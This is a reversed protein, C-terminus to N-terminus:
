KAPARLWLSVHAPQMTEDVVTRLESVLSDLDVEDRLRASFAELTVEADYKSRYFRRDVLDQIRRRAPNFLTAVALTSAAVALGSDSTIPALVLGFLLVGGLYVGALTATLAGYVLARNVVVDIDFLRYRLIAVTIAAPIGLFGVLQVHNVIEPARDDLLVSILVTAVLLAGAAWLWKIQEREVGASKRFRIALSAVSALAAAVILPFAIDRAISLWEALGFPTEVAPYGELPGTVFATAFLFVATIALSARLLWAWGATAPRGTPFLLPIVIFMPVVAFVWIWSAVWFWVDARATATGDAVLLHWGLRETFLLTAFAIAILLLLWGIPNRSRRAALIAGLGAFVATMFTEALASAVGPAPEPVGAVVKPGGVDVVLLGTRAAGLAITLAALTWALTRM